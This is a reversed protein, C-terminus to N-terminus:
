PQEKIDWALAYHGLTAAIADTDTGGAVAVIVVISGDGVKAEVDVVGPVSTLADRVARRTADARLSPKYPKGVATVPIADIVIVSKPAAASESVRELAWQRM